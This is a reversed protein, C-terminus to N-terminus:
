LIEALDCMEMMDSETEFRTDTDEAGQAADKTYRRGHEESDEEEAQYKAMLAALDEQVHPLLLLLPLCASSAGVGAARGALRLEIGKCVEQDSGPGPGPEGEM